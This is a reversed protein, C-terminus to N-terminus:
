DLVLVETLDQNISSSDFPNFEEPEQSPIRPPWPYNSFHPFVRLLSVKDLFQDDTSTNRRASHGSNDTEPVLPYEQSDIPNDLNHSSDIFIMLLKIVTIEKQCSHPLPKM